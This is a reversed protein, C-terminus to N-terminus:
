YGFILYLAQDASMNRIGDPDSLPYSGNWTFLGCMSNDSANLYSSKSKLTVQYRSCWDPYSNQMYRSALQYAQCSTSNGVAGIQVGGGPNGSHSNSPTSHAIVVSGDACSGLSLWVHGSMSMIDGPRPTTGSSVSHTWTGFGRESLRKAMKTSKTVYGPLGDQTELTNYLVWGVYGSCDLGAYYYQNFGRHPYYTSPANETRYTYSQDHERYFRIWDPQVGISRAQWGAVADADAGNAYKGDQWNWGGGFMYLTTGVPEMATQLLNRVTLVGPTGSVPPTYSPLGTEIEEVDTIQSGDLTLRFSYNVKLKNQIPFDMDGQPTNSVTYLQEAGNVRFRYQFRSANAFTTGSAGWDKVGLFVGDVTNGPSATPIEFHFETVPQTPMPPLTPLVSPQTPAATPPETPIFLPGEEIPDTEPPIFTPIEITEYQPETADTTPIFTPIEVTEYQPETADATPIFTPIEVTEYQPETVDTAPAATEATSRQLKMFQLFSLHEPSTGAVAAYIMVERADMANIRHDQNVDAEIEQVASLGYNGSVGYLASAQLIIVADATNVNGNHDPDGYTVNSKVVDAAAHLPCTLIASLALLALLKGKKM